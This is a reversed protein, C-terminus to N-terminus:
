AVLPINKEVAIDRLKSVPHKEIRKRLLKRVVPNEDCLWDTIQDLLYEKEYNIHPPTPPLVRPVTEVTPM